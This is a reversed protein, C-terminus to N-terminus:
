LDQLAIMQYRLGITLEFLRKYEESSLREETDKALEEQLEILHEFSRDLSELLPRLRSQDEEGKEFQRRWDQYALICNRIEGLATERSRDWKDDGVRYGLRKVANDLHTVDPYRPSVCGTLILAPLLLIALRLFRKITTREMKVTGGSRTMTKRELFSGRRISKM